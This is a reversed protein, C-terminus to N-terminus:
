WRVMWPWSCRADRIPRQADHGHSRHRGCHRAPGAASTSPKRCRIRRFTRQSSRADMAANTSRHPRSPCAAMWVLPVSSPRHGHPGANRRDRRLGGDGLGDPPVTPKRSATRIPSSPSSPPSAVAIERVIDLATEPVGFDKNVRWTTNHVSVIVRDYGELKRLLADLSDRKMARTAASRAEGTCLTAPRDPVGNGISDGIVVSAIKLTDLRGVPSHGQPAITSRPSPTPTSTAVCCNATRPTSTPMSARPRRQVNRDLGAWEKARLVKLCKHDILARDVLGSDVATQIREIAKVPDQPFLMVDNGALLARLEIEGPKDANAVGKMNLADTFVLGRFGLEQELVV